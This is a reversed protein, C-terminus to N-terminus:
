LRHVYVHDESHNQDTPGPGPGGPNGRPADAAPAGHAQANHQMRLMVVLMVSRGSPQEMQRLRQAKAWEKKRLQNQLGNGRRVLRALQFALDAAEELSEKVGCARAHLAM